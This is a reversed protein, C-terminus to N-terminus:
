PRFIKCFDNKIETLLRVNENPCEESICEEIRATLQKEIRLFERVEAERKLMMQGVELWRKQLKAEEESTFRRRQEAFIVKELDSTRYDGKFVLGERSYIEISSLKGQRQLAEVTLTQNKYSDRLPKDHVFRGYRGEAKPREYRSYVGLLSLDYPVAFVALRVDYGNNVLMDIQRLLKETNKLPTECIINFRMAIADKMIKQAWIGADKGTFVATLRDNKADQVEQLPHYRRLEDCDIHAVGSNEFEIKFRNVISTKGAGPQGGVIVATPREQSKVGITNREFLKKQQYISENDEDTLKGKKVLEEFDYGM